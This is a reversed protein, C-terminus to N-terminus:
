IQGKHETLKHKWYDNCLSCYREYNNVKEAKCKVCHLFSLTEERNLVIGNVFKVLFEEMKEQKDAIQWYRDTHEREEFHSLGYNSKEPTLAFIGKGKRKVYIENNSQM